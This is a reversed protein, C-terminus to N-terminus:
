RNRSVNNIKFNSRSTNSDYSSGTLIHSRSRNSANQMKPDVVYSGNNIANNLFTNAFANNNSVGRERRWNLTYPWRREFSSENKSKIAHLPYLLGASRLGPFGSRTEQQQHEEDRQSLKGSFLFVNYNRPLKM